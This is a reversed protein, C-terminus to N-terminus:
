QEKVMYADINQEKLKDRQQRAEEESYSGGRVRFVKGNGAEIEEVRAEQGKEKLGDAMKQAHDITSFSGFQLQYKDKAGPTSTGAPKGNVEIPTSTVVPEPSSSEEPAATPETQAQGSLREVEEVQKQDVMVWPKPKHETQPRYESAKSVKGLLGKEVAFHGLWNGGVLSVWIVVIASVILKPVMGDNPKDRKHM